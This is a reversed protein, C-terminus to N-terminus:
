APINESILEAIAQELISVPILGAAWHVRAMLSSLLNSKTLDCGILPSELAQPLQRRHSCKLEDSFTNAPGFEVAVDGFPIAIRFFRIDHTLPALPSYPLREQIERLSGGLNLSMDFKRGELEAYDALQEYYFYDLEKFFSDPETKHRQYVFRKGTSVYYDSYLIPRGNLPSSPKYSYGIIRRHQRGNIIPTEAVSFPLGGISTLNHRVGEYYRTQFNGSM